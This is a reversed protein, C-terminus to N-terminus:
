SFPPFSSYFTILQYFKFHLQLHPDTIIEYSQHRNPPEWMWSCVIPFFFFFLQFHFPISNQQQYVTSKSFLLLVLIFCQHLFLCFCNQDAQYIIVRSKTYIQRCIFLWLNHSNTYKVATASYFCRQFDAPGGLPPCWFQSVELLSHSM